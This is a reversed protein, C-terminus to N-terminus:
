KSSGLLDKMIEMYFSGNFTPSFEAPVKILQIDQKRIVCWRSFENILSESYFYFRPFCDSYDIHALRAREDKIGDIYACKKTEAIWKFCGRDRCSALVMEFHNITYDTEVIIYYVDFGEVLYKLNGLNAKEGVLIFDEM